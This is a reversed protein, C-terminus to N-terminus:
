SQFLASLTLLISTSEESRFRVFRKRMKAARKVSADRDNLLVSNVSKSNGFLAVRKRVKADKSQSLVKLVDEPQNSLLVDAKRMSAAKLSEELKDIDFTM